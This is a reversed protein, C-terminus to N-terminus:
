RTTVGVRTTFIVGTFPVLLALGSWPTVIVAVPPVRCSTVTLALPVSTGPVRDASLVLQFDLQVSVGPPEYWTEAVAMPELPFVVVAVLAKLATVPVAAVEITWTRGLLPSVTPIPMGIMTWNLWSIGALAWAATSFLKSIMESWGVSPAQRQTLAPYENLPRGDAIKRGLVGHFALWFTVTM